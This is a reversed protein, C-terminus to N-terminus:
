NGGVTQEFEFRVFSDTSEIINTLDVPIEEGNTVVRYMDEEAAYFPPAILSITAGGEGHQLFAKISEAQKAGKYRRQLVIPEISGHLLEVGMGLFGPHESYMWRIVGLNMGSTDGDGNKPSVGVLEGVCTGGDGSDPWNLYYGNESRNTTVCEKGGVRSRAMKRKRYAEKNVKHLELTGPEVEILVEDNDLISSDIMYHGPSFLSTSSVSQGPVADPLMEGGHALHLSDLGCIVEVMNSTRNRVERPRIQQSWADRLKKMLRLAGADTPRMKTQSAEAAAVKEELMMELNDTILYWGVNIKQKKCLNPACPIGDSQADILFFSEATIARKISVLEVCSAWGKLISNVREAEGRLMSNPNALALLLIQKYLNEIENHGPKEINIETGKISQLENIVSYYYIGHLEKWTYKLCPRYTIFSHLLTEGLYFLASRLAASRTHKHFLLGTVTSDHFQSLVTKYSKVVQILIDQRLDALMRAKIDLPVAGEICSQKLSDLVFDITPQLIDLVESRGAPAIELRNLCDLKGYLDFAAQEVDGISLDDIWQKIKKRSFEDRSKFSSQRKPLLFPNYSKISAM